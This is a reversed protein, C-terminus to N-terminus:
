NRGAARSTGRETHNIITINDSNDKARKKHKEGTM